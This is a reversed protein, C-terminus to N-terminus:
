VLSIEDPAFDVKQGNVRQVYGRILGHEDAVIRMSAPHVGWLELIRGESDTVKNLYSDEGIAMHAVLEYLLRSFRKTPNPNKLWRTIDDLQKRQTRNPEAAPDILGLLRDPSHVHM